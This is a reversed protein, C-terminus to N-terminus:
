SARPFGSFISQGNTMRILLFSESPVQIRDLAGGFSAALPALVQSVQKPPMFITLPPITSRKGAELIAQDINSRDTVQEAVEKAREDRLDLVLVVPDELNRQLADACAAKIKENALTLLEDSMF